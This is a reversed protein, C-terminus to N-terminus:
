AVLHPTVRRGGQGSERSLSLPTRRESTFWWTGPAARAHLRLPLPKGAASDIDLFLTVSPLWSAVTRNAPTAGPLPGALTLLLELAADIDRKLQAPNLARHRDRLTVSQHDDLAGSALLWRVPM